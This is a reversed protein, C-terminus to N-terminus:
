GKQLAHGAGVGIFIASRRRQRVQTEDKWAFAGTSEKKFINLLIGPRNVERRGDGCDGIKHSVERPSHDIRAEISEKQQVLAIAIDHARMERQLPLLLIQTEIREPAPTLRHQIIEILNVYMKRRGLSNILIQIIEPRNCRGEEGGVLPCQHLFVEAIMRRLLIVVIFEPDLEALLKGSM